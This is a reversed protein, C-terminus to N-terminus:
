QKKFYSYIKKGIRIALIAYDVYNFAGNIKNMLSNMAGNATTAHKIRELLVSKSVEIKAESVLRKYKLEDLTYGDWNKEEKIM